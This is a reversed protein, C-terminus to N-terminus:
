WLAVLEAVALLQAVNEWIQFAEKKTWQPCKPTCWVQAQPGVATLPYAWIAPVEVGWVWQPHCTAQLSSDFILSFTLIMHSFFQDWGSKHKQAHYCNEKWFQSIESLLQNQTECWWITRVILEMCRSFNHKVIGKLPQWDAIGFHLINEWHLDPNIM